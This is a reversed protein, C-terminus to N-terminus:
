FDKFRADEMPTSEEPQAKESESAETKEPAPKAAVVKQLIKGARTGLGELQTTQGHHASVLRNARNGGVLVSLGEVMTLMEQAQANMDGSVSASEEATAAARQTVKDMEAVAKNVQEIGQAQENSAAAIEGVLEGVKAASKAVESFAEDTRAVIEEGNKVKKVTGEILGATDRAAEAARMALNRVEDAVVAFGAGAEGARAAEVAANLALLNTQFAIEDITKIIKSTEESATSIAQMSTTLEAMSANAQSVVENAERVLNDAQAANDANLKTMSAMEELSSSTEELSAAEESTGEALSHSASSVQASAASVRDIGATMGNIATKLPRVVHRVLMYVLFGILLMVLVFSTITLTGNSKSTSQVRTLSKNFEQYKKDRFTDLARQLEESKRSISPLEKAIAAMDGGELYRRSIKDGEQVYEKFDRKISVLTPDEKKGLLEDAGTEFAKAEKQVKELNAPDEDEITASFYEQIQKIGNKFQEAKDLAPFTLESVNKIEATNRLGIGVSFVAIVAIVAVLPIIVSLLKRLPTMRAFKM